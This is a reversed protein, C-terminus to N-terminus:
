AEGDSRDSSAAGAADARNRQLRNSKESKEANLAYRDREPKQYVRRPLVAALRAHANRQEPTMGARVTSVRLSPGYMWWMEM